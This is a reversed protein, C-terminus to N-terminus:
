NILNLKNLQSIFYVNKFDYLFIRTASLPHNWWKSGKRWAHQEIRWSPSDMEGRQRIPWAKHSAKSWCPMLSIRPSRLGPKLLFPLKQDSEKPLWVDCLDWKESVVMSHLFGLNDLPVPSPGETWNLRETTDSEAVGHIAARWTERDMMLEQLESLSMDMSDTIGDLWRMRQWGRRRRGGIGPWTSKILNTM